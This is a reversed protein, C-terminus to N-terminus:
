LLNHLRKLCARAQMRCRKQFEGEDRPASAESSRVFFEKAKTPSPTKGNDPGLGLPWHFKEITMRETECGGVKLRPFLAKLSRLPTGFVSDHALHPGAGGAPGHC